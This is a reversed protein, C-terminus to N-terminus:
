FEMRTNQLLLALLQITITSCVALEASDTSLPCISFSPNSQKQTGLSISFFVGNLM